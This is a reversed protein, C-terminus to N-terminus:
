NGYQEQYLSNWEEKMKDWKARSNLQKLFEEYSQEFKDDSEAMIMKATYENVVASVSTINQAIVSDASAKVQDADTVVRHNELEKGVYDCWVNVMDGMTKDEPDVYVNWWPYWQRSYPTLQWLEPTATAKQAVDGSNRISDYEEDICKWAGTEEDVIDWYIGRPGESLEHGRYPDPENVWELFSLVANLHETDKNIFLMYGPNPNVYSTRGKEVGEVAPNGVPEYYTTVSQGQETYNRWTENFNTIWLDTTFIGVQGSEVKEIFREKSQTSVEMDILGERYMRNMWQYAAKYKPNDYLFVFEEGEKMVAPMNSLGGATDAGFTAVIIREQFANDSQVFSLPIIPNGNEDKLGAMDRMVKELGEITKLDDKTAGVQELLDTRVWWGDLTWGPWPDDYEMAYWGPVYWMKGEPDKIYDKLRDNLGPLNKLRDSEYVQTLDMVRDATILASQAAINYPVVIIDALKANSSLKMNLTSMFDNDQAFEVKYDIGLNERTVKQVMTDDPASSTWGCWITFQDTTKGGEAEPVYFGDSAEQQEKAEESGDQTEETKSAQNTDADTGPDPADKQGGCATTGLVLISALLAALIKKKM